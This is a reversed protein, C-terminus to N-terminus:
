SGCFLKASNHYIWCCCMLSGVVNMLTDNYLHSKLPGEGRIFIGGSQCEREGECERETGWVWEYVFCLVLMILSSKVLESGRWALPALRTEYEQLESVWDGTLLIFVLQASTTKPNYRNFHQSFDVVTNYHIQVLWYFVTYTMFHYRYGCVSHIITSLTHDRADLPVWMTVFDQLLVVKKWAIHCYLVNEKRCKNLSEKLTETM